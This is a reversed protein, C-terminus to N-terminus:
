YGVAVGDRRKDGIGQINGDPLYMIGQVSGMGRSFEGVDKFQHGKEKLKAIVDAPIRSEMDTVASNGNHIRPAEVAKVIDMDFDVINMIISTVATIIRAAGPAGFTAFPKGDKLLLTPSISSLPRKGPEPANVSKTDPTFDDMEDNLLIGTGEPVVGSGFFYNITQTVTIMNGDKDAVSFSTTSGSEYKSPNGPKLVGSDKDPIRARQSEAYQKSMLGLAPIQAFKPDAMYQRRDAYALRQAEIYNHLHDVSLFGAKKLDYGELINLMEVVTMGGSSPPAASVVTVNRYQGQAPDRWEAKYNDLDEKTIWENAGTKQFEKTIADAIEGKYFVDAGGKAIKTLTAALEPNTFNEGIGKPIGDNTFIKELAKRSPMKEFRLLSDDLSKSLHTNIPAGNQALNIAPQLLDEWKMTGFRKNLEDMGRVVGPVAVAHYGTTSADNVIKGKEDLKYMDPKAKAPAVERFDLMYSKKENANYLIAFGGGGIGSAFPEVAGLTLSVAVAADFANGGKKLVELGAQAALPNGAAVMGNKGIFDNKFAEATKVQPTQSQNQQTGCGTISLVFSAILMLAIFVRVRKTQRM